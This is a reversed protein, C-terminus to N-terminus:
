VLRQFSSPKNNQNTTKRQKEKNKGKRTHKEHKMDREEGGLVILLKLNGLLTVEKREKFFLRRTHETNHAARDATHTATSVTDRCLSWLLWLGSQKGERAAHRYSSSDSHRSRSSNLFLWDVILVILQRLLGRLRGMFVCYGFVFLVLRNNCKECGRKSNSCNKECITKPEQWSFRQSVFFLLFLHFDIGM